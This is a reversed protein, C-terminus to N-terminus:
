LKLYRIRQVARMRLDSEQDTEEEFDSPIECLLAELTVDNQIPKRRHTSMQNQDLECINDFHEDNATNEDKVDLPEFKIEIESKVDIFESCNGEQIQQLVSLQESNISIAQDDDESSELLEVKFEAECKIDM